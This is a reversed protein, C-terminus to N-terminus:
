FPCKAIADQPQSQSFGISTGVTARELEWVSFRIKRDTTKIKSYSPAKLFGIMEDPSLTVIM